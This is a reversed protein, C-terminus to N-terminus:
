LINSYILSSYNITIATSKSPSDNHIFIDVSYSKFTSFCINTLSMTFCFIDKVIFVITIRSIGFSIRIIFYNIFFNEDVTIKIIKKKNVAPAEFFQMPNNETYKRMNLFGFFTSLSAFTKKMSPNSLRRDKKLYNRYKNLEQLSLEDFLKIPIDKTKMEKFEDVNEKEYKIFNLIDRIYSLQTTIERKGNHMHEYFDKLYTPSQELLKEIQREIKENREERYEIAM